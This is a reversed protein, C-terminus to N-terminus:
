KCHKKLKEVADGALREFEIRWKERDIQNYLWEFDTILKETTEQGWVLKQLLTAWPMQQGTELKEYVTQFGYIVYPKDSFLAMTAPGSTTGLFMIGAQILALDQEITTSYDKAILVNSFGRFRPDIEEKEGIMVFFAITM